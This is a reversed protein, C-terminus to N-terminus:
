WQPVEEETLLCVIMLGAALTHGTWDGSGYSGNCLYM